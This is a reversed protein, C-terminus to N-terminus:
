IGQWLGDALMSELLLKFVGPSEAGVRAGFDDWGIPHMRGLEADSGFWRLLHDRQEALTPLRNEELIRLTMGNTFTPIKNSAGMRRLAHALVARQRRQLQLPGVAVGPIGRPNLYGYLHHLEIEDVIFDGCHPCDFQFGPWKRGDPGFM